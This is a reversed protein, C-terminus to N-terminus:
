TVALHLSQHMFINSIGVNRSYNEIAILISMIINQRRTTPFEFESCNPLAVHSETGYGQRAGGIEHLKTTEKTIPGFWNYCSNGTKNRNQSIYRGDTDQSGHFSTMEEQANMLTENWNENRHWSFRQITWSGACGDCKVTDDTMPNCLVFSFYNNSGSSFQGYFCIGLCKIM